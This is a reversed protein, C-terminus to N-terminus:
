LNENILQKVIEMPLPTVYDKGNCMISTYEIGEEEYRNIANIHYFTFLAVSTNKISSQIGLKELEFDADTYILIPIEIGNM